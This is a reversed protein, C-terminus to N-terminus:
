PEASLVRNRGQRKAEYLAQDARRLLNQPLGGPRPWAVAVGISVTVGVRAQEIRQRLQEARHMALDLPQAPLLLTFEEGGYRALIELPPQLGEGLLGAVEVLVRDGELHGHQDNFRKFHDVDVMLAALPQGREGCRAWERTLAQELARRNRVGTLPDEVAMDALRANALELDATRDAIRQELQRNQREVRVLRRRGLVRLLWFVLLAFVLGAAVRLLPEEYWRPLVRLRLQLPAIPRQSPLRGEVELIYEDPALGRIGLDRDAWDAFDSGIATIRFRFQSDPELTALGFRLQMPEHSRVEVVGNKVLLGGWIGDREVLLRDITVALAPLKQEPGEPAFQLLGNWVPVRIVGAGNARPAGFGTSAWGGVQVREWPLSPAPRRLLDRPSYAYTGLPTDELALRNPQNMMEIWDPTKVATFRDAELDFAFAQGDLWAMMQGDLVSLQPSHAEDQPLGREADFKTVDLREGRELDFRWRQVPEPGGVLWLEGADRQLMASPAVGDFPWRREVMWSEDRYRLLLLAESTMAFVVDRRPLAARLMRASEAVLTEPETTGPRLWDLGTRQAVLMGREDALLAWVEFSAWPMAEATVNAGADSTLRLLSRDTGVWLANDFEATDLVSGDIGHVDTLLSWPSPMALRFVETATVTWVGGENDRAIDNIGQKAVRVRQRLTLGADIWLLEGDVTALLFGGGDLPAVSYVALPGSVWPQVLRVGSEDLQWVGDTAVAYRAGGWGLVAAVPRFRFAGGGPILEVVGDRMRGLGRGEERAYIDGAFQIISRMADGMPWARLDSGDAPVLHLFRESQVYIGDGNGVISWVAGLQRQTQPLGSSALLDVYRYGSVPDLELRGFTDVGGVMIRGDSMARVTTASADGPLPVTTWASGDFILVGEASAVYLKGPATAVARLAPAARYDAPGFRLQIPAGMPSSAAAPAAFVLGLALM